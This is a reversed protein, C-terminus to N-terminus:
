REARLIISASIELDTIARDPHPLSHCVWLMIPQEGRDMRRETDAIMRLEDTTLKRETMDAEKREM